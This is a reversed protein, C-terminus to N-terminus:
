ACGMGNRCGLFRVHLRRPKLGDSPSKLTVAMDAIGPAMSSPHGFRPVACGLVALAPRAPVKVDSATMFGFGLGCLFGLLGTSETQPNEPLQAVPPWVWRSGVLGWVM